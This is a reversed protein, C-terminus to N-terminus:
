PSGKKIRVKCDEQINTLVLFAMNLVVYRGKRKSKWVPIKKMFANHETKSEREFM